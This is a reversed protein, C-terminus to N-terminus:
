IDSYKLLLWNIATKWGQLIAIGHLLDLEIYEHKHSLNRMVAKDKIIISKMFIKSDVALDDYTYLGKNKLSKEAFDDDIFMM